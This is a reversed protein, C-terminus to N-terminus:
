VICVKSYDFVHRVSIVTVESLQFYFIIVYGRVARVEVSPLFCGACLLHLM